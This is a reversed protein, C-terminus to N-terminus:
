RRLTVERGGKSANPGYIHPLLYPSKDLRTDSAHRRPVPKPQADKSKTSAGRAFPSVYTPLALLNFPLEDVAARRQNEDADFFEYDFTPLIQAVTSANKKYVECILVPRQELVARAGSLALVAAGEVDIKLVDPAPLTELILDLTLTPVLQEYRVGGM